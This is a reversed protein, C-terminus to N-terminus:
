EGEIFDEILYQSDGLWFLGTGNSQDLWEDLCDHLFKRFDDTIKNDENDPHFCIDSHIGGSNTGYIIEGCFNMRM